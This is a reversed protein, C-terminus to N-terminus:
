LISHHGASTTQRSNCFAFSCTKETDTEQMKIIQRGLTMQKPLHASVADKSLALCVGCCRMTPKCKAGDFCVFCYRMTPKCKAGDFCNSACTSQIFYM